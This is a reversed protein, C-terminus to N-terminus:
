MMGVKALVELQSDLTFKSVLKIKDQMVTGQWFTSQIIIELFIGVVAQLFWFAFLFGCFFPSDWCWIFKTQKLLLCSEKWLVVQTANGLYVFRLCKTQSNDCSLIFSQTDENSLYLM